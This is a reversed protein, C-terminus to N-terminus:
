SWQCSSLSYQPLCILIYIYINNLFARTSRDTGTDVSKCGACRFMEGGRKQEVSGAAVRTYGAPDTLDASSQYPPFATKRGAPTVDLLHLPPARGEVWAWDHAPGHVPDAALEPPFIACTHMDSAWGRVATLHTADPYIQTDCPPAALERVGCTGCM